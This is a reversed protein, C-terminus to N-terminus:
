PAEVAEPSPEIAIPRDGYEVDAPSEEAIQADGFSIDEASAVPTVLVLTEPDALEDSQDVAALVADAATAALRVVAEDVVRAADRRGQLSLLVYVALVAVLILPYFWDSM